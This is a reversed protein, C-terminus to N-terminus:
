TRKLCFMMQESYLELRRNFEKQAMKKAKELESKLNEDAEKQKQLVYSNGEKVKANYFNEAEKLTKDAISKQESLYLEAEKEANQMPLAIEKEFKERYFHEFINEQMELHNNRFIRYSFPIFALYSIFMCAFCFATVKSTETKTDKSIQRLTLISKNLNENYNKANEAFIGNVEDLILKKLNRADYTTLEYSKEAKRVLEGCKEGIDEVKQSVASVSGDLSQMKSDFTKQLHNNLENGLDFLSNHIHKYDESNMQVLERKTNMLQEIKTESSTIRQLIIDLRDELEEMDM